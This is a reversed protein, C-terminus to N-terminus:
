LVPAIAAAVVNPNSSIFKHKKDVKARPNALHTLGRGRTMLLRDPVAGAHMALRVAGGIARVHDRLLHPILNRRAAPQAHAMAHLVDGHKQVLAAERASLVGDGTDIRRRARGAGGPASGPTRADYQALYADVRAHTSRKLQGDQRLARLGEHASARAQDPDQQRLHEHVVHGTSHGADSGQVFAPSVVLNRYGTQNFMKKLESTRAENVPKDAVDSGLVSRILPQPM